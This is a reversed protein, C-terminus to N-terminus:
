FVVEMTCTGADPTIVSDNGDILIMANAASKAYMNVMRITYPKAGDSAIHISRGNRKLSVSLEPEELSGYVDADVRIRDRLAYVRLECHEDSGAGTEIIVSNEHVLIVPASSTVNEIAWVGGLYEKGTNFNTWVGKPLFFRVSSEGDPVQVVLVNKNLMYQKDM